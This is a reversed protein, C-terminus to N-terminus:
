DRASRRGPTAWAAQPSSQVQSSFSGGSSLPNFSITSAATSFEHRAIWCAGGWRVSSSSTIRAAARCSHCERRKAEGRSRPEGSKKRRASAAVPPQLPLHRLSNPALSKGPDTLSSLAATSSATAASPPARSNAESRRRQSLSTTRAATLPWPAARRNAESARRQSSCTTTAATLWSPEASRKADSFSLSAFHGLPWKRSDKLAGQSPQYQLRQAPDRGGASRTALNTLPRSICPQRGQSYSRHPSQKEATPYWCPERAATSWARVMSILGTSAM